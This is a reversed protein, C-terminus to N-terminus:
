KLVDMLFIAGALKRDVGSAKGVSNGSSNRITGDSEIKGIKNGSSNRITGDRDVKGVRNGSSNRITGDSEVKGISNGSSNTMSQAYATGGLVFISMLLMMLWKKM